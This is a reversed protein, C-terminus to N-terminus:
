KANTPFTFTRNEQTNSIYMYGKGPELTNLNGRWSGSQYQSTGIQSKVKDGNVAFGTFADSISMSESFPFAIWNVGSMITIPYESPNIPIGELMIECSAATKINYMKAVDWTISGGWRQTNPNYTTNQTQSKITITTNPLAEMLAAKLDDLTIEVCTSFWNWGSNLSTTQQVTSQKEICNSWFIEPGTEEVYARIMWGYGPLGVNALDYWTGGDFSTWRNNADGTDNCASAPYSVGQNYFVIWLNQTGDIAVMDNLDIEMFSYSNLMTFSQTAVPLGAPATNGGLYISLTATGSSVSYLAVKTLPYGTYSTLSASPIMMGWYFSGGAGVSTAYTGDDYYLWGGDFNVMSPEGLDGNSNTPNVFASADITHHNEAVPMDNWHIESVKGRGNAVSVGYKYNGPALTTWENDVYQNGTVNEAILEEDGGDCSSRYVSFTYRDPMTSGFEVDDGDMYSLDNRSNYWHVKVYPSSPNSADPYYEALVQLSSPPTTTIFNAVYVANGTVSFSYIADTSVVVDNKTWNVFTYGENTTANLTCIQSAFYSGMGTVTGGETPNASASITYYTGTGIQASVQNSANTEGAYYNTKVYYNYMGTALNNDSYNTSSVNNAIPSGNRYINYTYTGDSVFTRILFASNNWTSVWSTPNTSYYNGESGSYTCYTAPYNRAEPDYIFVWLDKSADIQIPTSLDIDCWGTSGVSFTQQLLQTQPHNSTTGKYVYVKYSGTENAYFSVKYVKMNNYSSLISAPYRHGWYLCTTGDNYGLATGTYEGSGYTMTATPTAPYCWDPATWTLNVNNGSVTAALDDVVPIPYEVTVTVANSSLSLRGQSDVSRVYYVSTSYPAIDTYSTSSVNGIFSNDRYVKYSSAGSAVSWSLTVNRGNQSYTLNSPANASCESPRIGFVAGQNDNYIGNTGSGTGGPGPNLNNITYYEDCYGGWGWNFHFYNNSNYGDCVFSHGGGSGSGSYQIPRNQNLDTKLMNIWAADSYNSRSLFQVDSSYNFYTVLADAVYATVAGSASPSYNMNVSVGCHYMLTAVALKQANTSSGNYTNTMNTWDYNTSQFDASLEGYTAHNYSHSGIGHTPYNWYKMIQAMATAVCGTVSGGPCLLNYPYGQDWQTQILPSVATIARGTNPNGEALDRWQQMVESSARLQNDVAYQIEDSYGQIWARKNDPMNEFDFSGTLSYALIPQVCDDAAMLVFSTETTFVYVNSFGAVSSVDTLEVSRAGNNNLFTTAVQRARAEGVPNANAVFALFLLFMMLVLHKGGNRSVKNMANKMNGYLLTSSRM